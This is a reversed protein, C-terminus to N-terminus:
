GKIRSIEDMLKDLATTIKARTLPSQKLENVKKELEGGMKNILIKALKENLATKFQKKFEELEILETVAGDILEIFQSSHKEMVQNVFNSLPRNYGILETTIAQNVAKNAANIVEQALSLEKM